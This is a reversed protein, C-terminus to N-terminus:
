RTDVNDVTAAEPQKDNNVFARMLVLTPIMIVGMMKWTTVINWQTWFLALAVIHAAVCMQLGTVMAMQKGDNKPLRLPLAGMNVWTVLLVPLPLIVAVLALLVVPTSARKEEVPLPFEFEPLLHRKISIDFDFVGRKPEKVVEADHDRIRMRPVAVWSRSTKLRADGVIVEVRWGADDAENNFTWLARDARIEKAINVEVKADGGRGAGTKRMVYLNDLGTRLNVIRLMAQEVSVSTSDGNEESSGDAVVSVSAQLVDTTKIFLEEKIGPATGDGDDDSTEASVRAFKEGHEVYSVKFKIKDIRYAADAGLAPQAQWSLSITLFCVVLLSM